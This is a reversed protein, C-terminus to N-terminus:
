LLSQNHKNTKMEQKIVTNVTSKAFSNSARHLHAYWINHVTVKLNLVAWCLYPNRWNSSVCNYESVGPSHTLQKIKTKLSIKFFNYTMNYLSTPLLPLPESAPAGGTHETYCSWAHLLPQINRQQQTTPTVLHFCFCRPHFVDVASPPLLWQMM